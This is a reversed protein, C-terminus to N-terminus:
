EQTDINSMDEFYRWIRRIEDEEEALRGNGDKIKSCSEVKRGKVNSVETRFLKRNRFVDENM